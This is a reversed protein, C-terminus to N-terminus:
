IDEKEITGDFIGDESVTVKAVDYSYMVTLTRFLEAAVMECSRNNLEYHGEWFPYSQKIIADLKQQFIIFEVQRNLHPINLTATVYFVHRHPHRLFRVQEHPCQPWNHLGNFQTRVTITIKM